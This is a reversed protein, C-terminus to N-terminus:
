TNPFLLSAKIIKKHNLFKKSMDETLRFYRHVTQYICDILFSKGVGAGGRIFDFFQENNKLKSMMNMMYIQQGDNLCSMKKYYENDDIIRPTSLPVSESLKLLLPQFMEDPEAQFGVYEEM